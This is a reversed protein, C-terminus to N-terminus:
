FKLRADADLSLQDLRQSHSQHLFSASRAPQGCRLTTRRAPQNRAVAAQRGCALEITGRNETDTNGDTDTTLVESVASNRVCNGAVGGDLWL